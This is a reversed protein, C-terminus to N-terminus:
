GTGTSRRRNRVRLGSRRAARRLIHRGKVMGFSVEGQLNRIRRRGTGAGHITRHGYEIWNAKHDDASVRGVVYGTRGKGLGGHISEMYDGTDFAERVAIEKATLTIEAALNQLAPDLAGARRLDHGLQYNPEFVFGEGRILGSRPM